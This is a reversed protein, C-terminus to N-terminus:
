VPRLCLWHLGLSPSLTKSRRGVGAFVLGVLRPLTRMEQPAALRGGPLKGDPESAAGRM